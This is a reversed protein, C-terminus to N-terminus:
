HNAYWEEDWVYRWQFSVRDVEVSRVPELARIRKAGIHRNSNVVHDIWREICQQEHLRLDLLPAGVSMGAQIRCILRSALTAISLAVLVEGPTVGCESAVIAVSQFLKVARLSSPRDM